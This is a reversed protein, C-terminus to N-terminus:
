LAHVATQLRLVHQREVKPQRFNLVIEGPLALEEDIETRSQFCRGTHLRRASYKGQRQTAIAEADRKLDVPPRDSLLVFRGSIEEGGADAVEARHSNRNEFSAIEVVVITVARNRHDDDGLSKRALIERVFVRKTFTDM